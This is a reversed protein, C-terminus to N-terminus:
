HGQFLLRKFVKYSLSLHQYVANEGKGVINEVSGSVFKAMISM